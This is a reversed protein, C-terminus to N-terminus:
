AGVKAAFLDKVLAVHAEDTLGLHEVVDAAPDFEAGMRESQAIPVTRWPLRSHARRYHSNKVKHAVEHLVKAVFNVADTFTVTTATVEDTLGLKSVLEEAKVALQARDNTHKLEAAYSDARVSDGASTFYDVHKALLTAQETHKQSPTM